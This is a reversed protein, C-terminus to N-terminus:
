MWKGRVDQVVIIYNERAYYKYHREWLRPYYEKGYPACSYPTRIMLIPHKESKDNPIYIATFLKVGDRMPISQEVKTYNEQIWASDQDGQSFCFLPLLLVLTFLSKRTM